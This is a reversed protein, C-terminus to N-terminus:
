RQRLRPLIWWKKVRVPNPLNGAGSTSKGAPPSLLRLISRGATTKGCGSEGVLGLTEGEKIYLDIDDVAKVNGAVRRLIGKRVPFFKKLNKVDLLVNEATM